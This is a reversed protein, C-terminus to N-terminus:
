TKRWISFLDCSSGFQGMFDNSFANPSIAPPRSRSPTVEAFTVWIVLICLSFICRQWASTPLERWYATLINTFHRYRLIGAAHKRTLFALSGSALFLILCDMRVLLRFYKLSTQPFDSRFAQICFRSLISIIVIVYWFRRILIHINSKKVM